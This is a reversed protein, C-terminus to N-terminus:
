ARRVRRLAIATVLAGTVVYLGTEAMQFPWYRSSPQYEIDVHLDLASLCVATDGFTGGAGTKSPTDLCENFASESLTRGDATRLPSTESIWADPAGPVRLGGIVPAGTVSGLSRARNITQATMALTAEEPPMLHPRVLNPVTFQVVLFVVGTIAM